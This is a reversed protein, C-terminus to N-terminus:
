QNSISYEYIKMRIHDTLLAIMEGNTPKEYALNFSRGFLGNTAALNGRKWALEIAHRISREVRSASTHYRQAISPYLHQSLNTALKPDTLSFQVADLLYHYGHVNLPIGVEWLLESIWRFTYTMTSSDETIPPMYPLM